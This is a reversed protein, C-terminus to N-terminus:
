SIRGTKNKYYNYWDNRKFNTQTHCSNCLSILNEKKNNHKNYDIHHVHLSYKRGDPLYLEDQHRFCEQCRYKDRKRIEEKIKKFEIPYQIYSIGGKWNYHNKGKRKEITEPKFIRGKQAKSLKDKQSQPMIYGKHSNSLKIKTEKSPKNGFFNSKEGDIWNLYSKTMRESMQKRQHISVIHGKNAISIKKKTEKSRPIGKIAPNGFSYHCKRSCFHNGSKSCRIAYPWVNIIKNCNACKKKIM